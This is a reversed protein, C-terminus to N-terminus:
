GTKDAYRKDFIELIPQGADLYTQVVGQHRALADTLASYFDRLFPVSYVASTEGREKRRQEIDRMVNAWWSLQQVFLANRTAKAIQGWFETRFHRKQEETPEAPVSDILYRLVGVQETTIRREALVLLPLVFLFQSERMAGRLGAVGPALELRLQVLRIDTAMNPDLVIMSSGQRVRVLGLDELRHIAQRVVLTSIQFQESLERQTPLAQGPKLEGSLILRALTEFVYDAGRQRV